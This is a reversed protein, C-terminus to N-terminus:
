GNFKEIHLRFFESAFNEGISIRSKESLPMYKIEASNREIEDDGLVMSFKANIKNAYKMQAKVSKGVLDIECILGSKRIENALKFAKLGAKQGISAIYLDCGEPKPIDINQKEMALMLREIGIGFGLSPMSPGGIEEILGDYRGGGCIAGQAGIDECVFEFVTKTYYDLGRVIRPNVKYEINIADLYGKVEEFHKSCEDCLYDLIVPANIAIERWSPNKCDLIRMPNRSLRDICTHCLNSKNEEFYAKLAENYKQRCHPCGISNIQLSINKLDLRKFLSCAMSILEADASPSGAGFVELGFQHFERLRGAQPKEYRYCSSLYYTKLPLGDNYLGHELMSRAVGATGEPRLTVSRGGKDDFTYMEKQVVDTTQGVSRSFLETHEFVPTRIEKFGYLLAEQKLIREVFDLKYSDKPLVDNTGKIAKTILEM